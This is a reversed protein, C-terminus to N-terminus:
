PCALRRGVPGILVKPEPEVAGTAIAFWTTNLAGQWENHAANLPKERSSQKQLQQLNDAVLRFRM